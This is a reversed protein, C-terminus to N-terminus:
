GLKQAFALIEETLKGYRGPAPPGTLTLSVEVMSVELNVNHGEEAAYTKVYEAFKAAVRKSPFQFTRGIAQGEPLPAWAPMSGLMEQVRESKLRQVAGGPPTALSPKVSEQSVVRSM